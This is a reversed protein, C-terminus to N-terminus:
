RGGLALQVGVSLWIPQHHFAVDSAPTFPQSVGIQTGFRVTRTGIQVGGAPEVFFQARNESFIERSTEFEFFRVRVLRIAGNLTLPGVTIGMAPQLFFRDYRGTATVSQSGFFEYEDTAEASGRGYGGYVEFRGAEGADTFYGLGVEGFRHNHVDSGISEDEAEQEQDAYSFDASVGVHDTLAVAGQLDIGSSGLYGGVQVEGQGELMPSHVTNPVYVPACGTIAPLSVGLLLVFLRTYSPIPMKM